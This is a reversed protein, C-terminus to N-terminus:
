PWTCMEFDFSGVIGLEPFILCVPSDRGYTMLRTWISPASCIQCDLKAIFYTTAVNFLQTLIHSVLQSIGPLAAANAGMQNLNLHVPSNDAYTKLRTIVSGAGSIQWDMKALLSDLCYQSNKHRFKLGLESIRPLRVGIEPMHEFNLHVPSDQACIMKVTVAYNGIANRLWCLRCSLRTGADSYTVRAWKKTAWSCRRCSYWLREPVDWIPM